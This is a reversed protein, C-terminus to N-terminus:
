SRGGERPHHRAPLDGTWQVKTDGRREFQYPLVLTQHRALRGDGM